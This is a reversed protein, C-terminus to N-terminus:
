EESAIQSAIWRTIAMKEMLPTMRLTSFFSRAVKLRKTFTYSTEGLKNGSRTVGIGTCQLSAKAILGILYPSQSLFPLLSQAATNRIILFLGSHLPIRGKSFISVLSKFIFSTVLRGGSEYNGSRQAFIVDYEPAFSNLMAPLFEPEDQLDADMCAIIEGKAFAMGILIASSQGLNQRLNVIQFPMNGSLSRLISISNDPSADNVYVLDCDWNQAAAVTAIRQHLEVLTKASKYVPVVVSIRIM